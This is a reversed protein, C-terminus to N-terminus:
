ASLTEWIDFLSLQNELVAAKKKTGPKPKATQAAMNLIVTTDAKAAPKEVAVPEEAADPEVPEAEGEIVEAGAEGEPKLFAMKKFVDGINETGNKLGLTLEQALLTTLDQCESMAALGEDTLNGEIVGAVALKSAMLRIARQQMVGKFYLFYM